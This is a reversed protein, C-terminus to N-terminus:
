DLLHKDFLGLVEWSRFIKILKKQDVANRTRQTQQLVLGIVFKIKQEFFRVYKGQVYKVITDLVYLYM